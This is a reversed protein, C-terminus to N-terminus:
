RSNGEMIRAAGQALLRDALALGLKENQQAPAHEDASLVFTGEADAVM